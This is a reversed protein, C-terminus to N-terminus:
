DIINILDHLKARSIFQEVDKNKHRVCGHSLNLGVTWEANTGHLYEDQDSKILGTKEDVPRNLITYPGFWEPHVNMTGGTNYYTDRYPSKGIEIVYRIGPDTSMDRNNEDRPNGVGNPYKVQFKGFDNYFYTLHKKRSVVIRCLYKQGKITVEPSPADMKKNYESIEATLINSNLDTVPVGPKIGPLYPKLATKANIVTSTKPTAVEVSQLEKLDPVKPPNINEDKMLKIIEIDSDSKPNDKVTVARAVPILALLAALTTGLIFGSKKGQFSIFKDESNNTSQLFLQKSNRSGQFNNIGSCFSVRM